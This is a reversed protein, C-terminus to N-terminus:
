QWDSSMMQRGLSSQWKGYEEDTCYHWSADQVLLSHSFKILRIVAFFFFNETPLNKRRREGGGGGGSFFFLLPRSRPSHMTSSHVPYIPHESLFLVQFQNSVSIKWCVRFKLTFLYLPELQLLSSPPPPLGGGGGGNYNKPPLISIIRAFASPSNTLLFFTKVM